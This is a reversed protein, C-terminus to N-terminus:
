AADFSWPFPSECAGRYDYGLRPKYIATFAACVTAEALDPLERYGNTDLVGQKGHGRWLCVVHSGIIRHDILTVVQAEYGAMKTVACAYWYAADDCDIPLRRIADPGVELAHQLRGPHIIVDVVGWLPDGTYPNAKKVFYYDGAEAASRFLPISRRADNAKFKDHNQWSVDCKWQLYAAVHQRDADSLGGPVPASRDLLM